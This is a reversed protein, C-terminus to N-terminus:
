RSKISLYIIFLKKIFIHIEHIKINYKKKKTHKTGKLQSM